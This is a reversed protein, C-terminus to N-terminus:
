VGVQKRVYSANLGLQDCVWGFGGIGDDGDVFWRRADAQIDADKHKLDLISVELLRQWMGQEPSQFQAVPNNGTAIRQKIAVGDPDPCYGVKCEGSEVWEKDAKFPNYRKGAQMRRSPMPRWNGESRVPSYISNLPDSSTIVGGLNKLYDVTDL